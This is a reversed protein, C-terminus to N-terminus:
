SGRRRDAGLTRVWDEVVYVRAAPEAFDEAEIEVMLFRGDAAVDYNDRGLLRSGEVTFLRTPASFVPVDGDRAVRVAMLENEDWYFLERGDASWRPERGGDLSIQWRGRGGPYTTVFVEPFGTRGGLYALLQGDPSLIADGEHQDTRVVARPNADGVLPASWIDAGTVEDRRQYILHTGRPSFAGVVGGGGPGEDFTRATGTGDVRRVVLRTLGQHEATYGVQQGDPSWFPFDQAGDDSVTLPARTGAALDYIWVQRREGEVGSAAARTGDPSLRPASIDLQPRGIRELARGERDVWVLRSSRRRNRVVLLAGDPSPHGGEANALLMFAEGTTEGAAEDFPLAWLDEGRTFLLHGTASYRPFRLEEGPLEVLTRREGDRFLQLRALPAQAFVVGGSPLAEPDRFPPDVAPDRELVPLPAGGAASVEYLGLPMSFVIRGDPTWAAQYYVGRPLTALQRPRAGDLGVRWLIDDRRFGLETGDASWFVNLAGLTGELPREVGDGLSLVRISGDRIFEVHGGDPSLVGESLPLPIQRAPAPEPLRARGLSWGGLGALALAAAIWASAVRRGRGAPVPAPVADATPHALFRELVVRAEGIGQLRTRSNKDLCRELLARVVAPTGRPLESWAPQRELIRALTEARDSGRFPRRGALMEFLVAGFAWVDARRDAPRGRIQQPGMYAITGLVHGAETLGHGVGPAPSADRDLGPSSLPHVTRAIGFDLVKVAGTPTLMVNAPKLDRHIVGRDHAADLAETIQLAIEAAELIPIPGISLREALTSGDVYELVLVRQDELDEVDYIAGINPHNLSALVQAEFRLRAAHEEDGALREPLVKLAVKRELRVDVGRYVRGMGGEGILGTVRYDGVRQGIQISLPRPRAPEDDPEPPPRAPGRGPSGGASPAADAQVGRAGDDGPRGRGVHADEDPIGARMRLEGFYEESAEAAELLDRVERELRADGGCRAGLLDSRAAPEVELAEALIEQIQHWRKADMTHGARTPGARSGPATGM